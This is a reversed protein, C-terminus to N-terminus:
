RAISKERGNRLVAVENERVLCVGWNVESVNEQCEMFKMRGGVRSVVDLVPWINQLGLRNSNIGLACINGAM